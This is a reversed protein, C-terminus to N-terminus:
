KKKVSPEPKAAIVFIIVGVKGHEDSHCHWAKAKPDAEQVIKILEAIVEDPIVGLEVEIQEETYDFNEDAMMEEITESADLLFRRQEADFNTPIKFSRGDFQVNTENMNKINQKTTKRQRNSVIGSYIYNPLDHVSLFHPCKKFLFCGM